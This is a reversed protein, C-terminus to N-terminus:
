IYKEMCGLIILVPKFNDKLNILMNKENGEVRVYFKGNIKIKKIYKKISYTINILFKTRSM